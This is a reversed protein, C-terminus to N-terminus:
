NILEIGTKDIRRTLSDWFHQLFHQAIFSTLGVNTLFSTLIYEPLFNAKVSQRQQLLLKLTSEIDM